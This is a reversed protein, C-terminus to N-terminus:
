VSFSSFILSGGEPCRTKLRTSPLPAPPLPRPAPLAPSRRLGRLYASGSHSVRRPLTWGRFRLSVSRFPNSADASLPFRAALANCRSALAAVRLSRGSCLLIGHHHHWATHPSLRVGRRAAYRLPPALRKAGPSPVPSCARASSMPAPMSPLPAAPPAPGGSRGLPAAGVMPPAIPRAASFASFRRHHSRARM